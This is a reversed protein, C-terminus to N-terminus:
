LYRMVGIEILLDLLEPNGAVIEKIRARSMGVYVEGLVDYLDGKSEVSSFDSKDFTDGAKDAILTEIQDAIDSKFRQGEAPLFRRQPIGNERDSFKLHGDAKNAQSGFFGVEIGEDTAKFTLADKLDGSVELDPISQGGEAVKKKKYDRDLAPFSEGQVPSDGDSMALLVQEVIFEGAEQKIERQLDAPLDSIELDITTTTRSPSGQSQTVKM